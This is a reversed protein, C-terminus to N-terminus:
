TMIRKAINWESFLHLGLTIATARRFVKQSNRDSDSDSYVTALFIGIIAYFVQDEQTAGFSSYQDKSIHVLADAFDNPKIFSRQMSHNLPFKIELVKQCKDAFDSSEHGMSRLKQLDLILDRGVTFKSAHVVAELSDESILGSDTCVGAMNVFLDWAIPAEVENGREVADIAQGFTVLISALVPEEGLVRRSFFGM